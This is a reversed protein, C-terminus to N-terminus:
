TGTEDDDDVDAPQLLQHKLRAAASLGEDPNRRYDGALGGRHTKGIKVVFAMGSAHGDEALNLLEKLVAVLERNRYESLRVLNM